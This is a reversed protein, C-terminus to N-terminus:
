RAGDQAMAGTRTRETRVPVRTPDSLVDELAVQAGGRGAATFGLDSLELRVGAFDPAFIRSQMEAYAPELLFRGLVAFYGGLVVVQPNFLNVLIAVGFGLSTGVTRLAACTRRDGADARRFIEELRFELDASPDHVPDEPEAAAHLLASLGVVTEWCGRRGCGCLRGEAGIPLHGVEGTFGEAGRLLAGGVIVGGGVGVEGTLCVMDSSAACRGMSYEALAGLNAENDAKVAFRLTGLRTALASVVPVDRWGLNPAFKVAGRRIDVLGPVAVTAGVPYLSADALAAVIESTLEALADLVHEPGEAVADIAVRREARVAGTLDLCVVAIYDVNIELGLGCVTRDDLEVPQAPRGIAGARQTECERVLAREILEAVLSSVTAKNLGTEAAIRARSRPGAERLHRLVLALNMRRVTAQDARVQSSGAAPPPSLQAVM